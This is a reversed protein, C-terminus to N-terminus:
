RKKIKVTENIWCGIKYSSGEEINYTFIEEMTPFQAQARKMGASDGARRFMEYAAMYVAKDHVPNELGKCDNFSNYYM